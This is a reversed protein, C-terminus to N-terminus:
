GATRAKIEDVLRPLVEGGKGQLVVDCMWTLATGYPDVEVLVGGRQKVMSPFGASPYVLGSTGALLMCDCKSVDDQCKRLVDVPIPEGFYVGDNKIIGNCKPCHPPLEDLSIEEQAYRTNCDICRVLYFNGHIEAINRTGAARHLNDVNQTIVSKLVGMEELEAMAYHGLNPKASEFAEFLGRIYGERNIMREWERKPDALFRQYGDMPPEGYETWVGGPGRFPRIDSEVSVGAGTLAVVYKASLMSEAARKINWALEEDFESMM